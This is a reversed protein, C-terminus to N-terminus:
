GQKLTELSWNFKKAVIVFSIVVYICMVLINLYIININERIQGLMSFRIGQSAYTTPFIYSIIQFIKPLNEIPYYIPSLFIFVYSCFSSLATVENYNKSKLGILIGLGVMSIALQLLFIILFINISLNLNFVVNSLIIVVLISPLIALFESTFLALVFIFKNIPLSLFYEMGDSIYINNIKNSLTTLSVNIISIILSGTIVFSARELFSDGFIFKFFIIFFVPLVFNNVFFAFLSNKLPLLFLKILLYYNYLNNKLGTM